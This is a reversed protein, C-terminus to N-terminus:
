HMMLVKLKQRSVLGGQSNNVQAVAIYLGSAYGTSTDWGILPQGAPSELSKVLQGSITYINVKLQWANQVGTGDFTTVWGNENNLVNPRAVVTGFVGYSGMVVIDRTIDSTSGSGNDWHVEITYVGPTVIDGENNTGDWTLTLPAGSTQVYIYALSLAGTSGQGTVATNVGAKFTNENLTVNTMSASSPDDVVYYLDRVKEGATNFVSASINALSRNVIVKQSVSTVVGSQGINDVQISYNGNTVPVGQNNLGDWTGIITGGFMINISSGSGHLTTITNTTSLSISNIPETFNQVLISRVVEGASNYVNIRVTFNGIVTVPASATLSPQGPATMQARNMLVSNAAQFGNVTTQYVLLYIGTSLPSPMTWQLLDTAQNFSGSVPNNPSFQSFTAGIPLTDTIVMGTTNNGTVTVAITYTLVDGAHAQTESVVKSIYIGTTPTSTQTNTSTM